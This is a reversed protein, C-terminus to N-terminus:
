VKKYKQTSEKLALDLTPYRYRFKLEKSRAPLVKQGDLLITSMEGFMMKIAFTPVPMFAPRKVAIGLAKTFEKNTAPYPSTGNFIGQAEPNKLCEVYLAALDDIHIWSMYQRGFGLPGGAGLKFPLLMKGLAGGGRGLVVGTRVISVRMGYAKAKNAAAEWDKCVHALFDSAISSEETIEEGGRNGYIGVASTSVFVSPKKTMKSIAEVLRSTGDIRSNYIKKKQDETWRKAAINEGMLNIVADVGEFAEQPPLINTDVWQYYHCKSGLTLAAKAINSTLVVVEDGKELLQGVIVRGVFGSAGTVLVKM